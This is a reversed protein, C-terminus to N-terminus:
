LLALERLHTKESAVVLHLPRTHHVEIFNMGRDGYSDFFDFGCAECNIRGGAALVSKIKRKRLSASRERRYHQVLMQRGEFEGSPEGEERPASIYANEEILRRIQGAEESAAKPDDLFYELVRRDERGGRTPMGTYEPRITGLNSYKL